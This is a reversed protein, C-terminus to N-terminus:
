YSNSVNSKPLSTQGKVRAKKREGKTLPHSHNHLKSFYKQTAIEIKKTPPSIKHKTFIKMVCVGHNGNYRNINEIRVKENFSYESRFSHGVYSSEM